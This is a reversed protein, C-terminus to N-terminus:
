FSATRVLVWLRYKSCFYLFNWLKKYSFKWNKSTFNEIYKFLRTKTIHEISQLTASVFKKRKVIIYTSWINLQTQRNKRKSDLVQHPDSQIMEQTWTSVEDLDKYLITSIDLITPFFGDWALPVITTISRISFFFSLNSGVLHPADRTFFSPFSM